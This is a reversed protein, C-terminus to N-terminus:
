QKTPDTVRGIFLPTGTAVDHIVFLYPRDVTVETDTLAGSVTEFTAATAASAETGHEDVTVTAQHVVDALHM